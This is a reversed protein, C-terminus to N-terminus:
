LADYLEQARQDMETKLFAPVKVVCKILELFSEPSKATKIPGWLEEIRTLILKQLDDEENCYDDWLNIAPVGFKLCRTWIIYYAYLSLLFL